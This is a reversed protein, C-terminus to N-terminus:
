LLHSLAAELSGYVFHFDHTLAKKPIARQSFLLLENMDGLLPKCLWQPVKVFQPRHYHHSIALQMTSLTVPEPSCANVAGSIKEENILFIILRCLDDIHIWPIYQGGNGWVVSLGWAAPASWLPLIGGKSDLVIGTRLQITRVKSNYSCREWLYATEALFGVGRPCDEDLLRQMGNGYYGIASGSMYVSTQLVSSEIANTIQQTIRIRSSRISEKAAKTWLQSIPEGALNIVADFPTTMQDLADYSYSKIPLQHAKPTRSLWSVEHGMAILLQSLHSGVLGSGGAILINM